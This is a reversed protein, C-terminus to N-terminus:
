KTDCWFLVDTREVLRGKDDFTVVGRLRSADFGPQIEYYGYYYSQHFRGFLTRTMDPKSLIQKVRTEDSANVQLHSYRFYRSSPRTESDKIIGISNEQLLRRIQEASCGEALRLNDLNM